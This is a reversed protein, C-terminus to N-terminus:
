RRRRNGVAAAAGMMVLALAALSWWANVPVPTAAVANVATTAPSANNASNPDSTSSGATITPTVAGDSPATYSASCTISSGSPLPTATPVAPTCSVTAGPPLGSISCTAAVAPNPGNNTCTFTGSVTTSATATPPFSATATMDASDVITLQVYTPIGAPLFSLSYNAPTAGTFSLAAFTGTIGSSSLLKYSGAKNAAPDLHIELTGALSAAGVVAVSSTGGSDIEIHVTGPDALTLSGVTITGGADPALTGANVFVDGTLKGTGGLTGKQASSGINRDVLVFAQDIEGNVRFNANTIKVTGQYNTTGNYVVTGNGTVLVTTGGAGFLTDDTFTVQDGLTLLDGADHAMLTLSSGTRLFISNGLASGDTGDAGGTGGTGHTGAQTTGNATDFTTPMGPLAGLTFNLNSDVFIAGGLGSGGGGGGGGSDSGYTNAGIGGSGGGLNGIDSGGIASSGNSPGGGGGGGGGLSNGGGAPTIGSQDVGGGGGGGGVGGMGGQVTYAIDYAGTGAGGGGGGGYGGNAAQGDVENTFNTTVVAGGGGGGGDGGNGGSTVADKAIPPISGRPQLGNLGASGGGGGGSLTFAGIAGGGGGGGANSGGSMGGGGSGATIALGYGNGDLGFTQDPGGNGLNTLTGITARSGLGGGGGGGGGLLDDISLTVDGGNGGFGGGGAGGTSGTTTVSGGNGGFGGGGGSGENGTPSLGFYSGGNGGVASTNNISVNLLTVSPNSGNLFFQPAYIAGGAGLGGGGGAIGNGGDGGRATMNQLTMNRITVNGVPIFFGRYAGSNGDITVTAVSGPNGMTINVPNSSNNIVPLIGNLQITMPSAFVIAYDDPITNLGQNMANLAYRLDGVEGIGGPNNDSNLTVTLTTLALVANSAFLLMLVGISQVILRRRTKVSKMVLAPMM